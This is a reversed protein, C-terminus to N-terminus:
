PAPTATSTAGSAQASTPTPTPPTVTVPIGPQPTAVPAGPQPTAARIQDLRESRLMEEFDWYSFGGPRESAEPHVLYVFVMGRALALTLLEVEEQSVTVWLVIPEQYTTVTYGGEDELPPPTPLGTVLVVRGPSLTRVVPPIGREEYPTEAGPTPTPTLTVPPLPPVETAAFPPTIQPAMYLTEPSTPKRPREPFVVALGVTDGIQYSSPAGAIVNSLELPLPFLTTEPDQVLLAALRNGTLVGSRVFPEGKGFPRTTYTGVLESEQEPVFYLGARQDQYVQITTIDDPGIRTGLPLDRAAALVEIQPPRQARTLIINGIFVLLAVVIAAGAVLWNRM